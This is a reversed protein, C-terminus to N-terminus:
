KNSKQKKICSILQCIGVIILFIGFIIKLIQSNLKSAIISVILAFVGGFIAFISGLGFNILNNKKHLIVAVAAMFVFSVLNIFQASKQEVSFFTILMPILITGGGMGMAGLAGSLLGVIVYWM